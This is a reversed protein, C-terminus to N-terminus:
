FELSDANQRQIRDYEEDEKARLEQATQITKGYEFLQILSSEKKNVFNISMKYKYTNGDLRGGNFVFNQFVGLSAKYIISDAENSAMVGGVRKAWNNFDFVMAFPQKHVYDSVLKSKPNSRTNNANLYNTANQKKNSFVAFRENVLIISSDADGLSNIKYTSENVKRLMRYDIALKLIKSFAAKEKLKIAFLVEMDTKYNAFSSSEDSSDFLLTEKTQTYNNLAFVMDGSIASMIEEISINQEKLYGNALGLMGMKEITKQTAEPSMSYAMMFDLGSSPVKNVLDEDINKPSYIKNIEKLEDSSYMVMDTVIAGKEFNTGASFASNRWMTNSLSLGGTMADINKSGYSSMVADINVWFGLDHKSKQFTAFREDSMLSNDTSVAFASELHAALKTDEAVLSTTNAADFDNYSNQTKQVSILILLNKTWGAYIEDTLKSEKRNKNEKIEAMEFTNKVFGEWKMADKLPILAVFCAEGNDTNTNKLYAYFTNLEDVGAEQMNKIFESQKTSDHKSKSGSLKEWLNSGTIMSWAIKKSLEKTNVEAVMLANKPLYKAHDPTRHCASLLLLLPLVWLSRAQFLKM